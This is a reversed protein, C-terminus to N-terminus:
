VGGTLAVSLMLAAVYFLTTIAPWIFIWIWKRGILQRNEPQKREVLFLVLCIIFSIPAVPNAVWGYILINAISFPTRWDSDHNIAYNSIAFCVTSAVCFLCFIIQLVSTIKLAKLTKM